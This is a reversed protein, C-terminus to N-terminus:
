ESSLPNKGFITEWIWFPINGYALVNMTVKGDM